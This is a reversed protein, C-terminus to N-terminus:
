LSQGMIARAVGMLSYYRKTYNIDLRYSETGMYGDYTVIFQMGNLEKNKITTTDFIPANQESAYLRTRKDKIHKLIGPNVRIYERNKDYNRFANFLKENQINFHMLTANQFLGTIDTLNDGLKIKSFDFEIIGTYAFTNHMVRVNTLDANELHLKWAACHEFMRTMDTLTSCNTNTLDISKFKTREFVGWSALSGIGLKIKEHISMNEDNAIKSIEYYDYFEVPADSFIIIKDGNEVVATSDNLMIGKNLMIAKTGISKVRELPLVEFSLEKRTDMKNEIKHIINRSLKIM